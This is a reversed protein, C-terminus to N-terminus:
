SAAAPAHAPDDKPHRFGAGGNGASASPRESFTKYWGQLRPYDASIVYNFKEVGASLIAYLHCDAVTPKAGAVFPRDGMGVEITYLNNDFTPKVAAAVKPEYAFGRLSQLFSPAMHLYYLRALVSLDAVVREVSRVKARELPTTGIMPPDPYIEELYEVIAASEPLFTGDDLELLPIKGAPNKALYESTKIVDPAGEFDVVEINDLGKEALYIKVRRTNGSMAAGYLKM